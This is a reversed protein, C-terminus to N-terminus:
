AAAQSTEEFHVTAQVLDHPLLTSRVAVVEKAMKAAGGGGGAPGCTYLTEVENGIRIAEGLSAARGAVRIRVEYPEPNAASLAAGHIANVGILDYRIEDAQVGTIALREAVIDLALRARAVAGPGAYSMQGEGIYSDIYGISVKLLGSKPRGTAGSVAVRDVGIDTMTVASFDVVVDPTLYAAPDHIEHLLQEKCSATTVSGGSGAVKTIVISGDESIEGIPFGLRALKAVDKYDPDAFYGGTIQGACELLHGALTGQDLRHWDDM